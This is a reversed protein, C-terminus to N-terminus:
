ISSIIVRYTEKHRLEFKPDNHGVIIYWDNGLEMRCSLELGNGLDMIFLDGCRVGYRRSGGEYWYIEWCDLFNNYQM